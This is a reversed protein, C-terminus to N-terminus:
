QTEYCVCVCMRVYMCLVYVRCVYLIYEFIFYMYALALIGVDAHVM